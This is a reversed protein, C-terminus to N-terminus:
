WSEAFPRIKVDFTWASRPQHALHWVENAIDAPQCFFSDPKDAYRRRTWPLDIVADIALYSVHVGEPGLRRAMSEALIRQAAKTPAFGAFNAVGRYAATNGTCVIAGERSAIMAPATAQVLRLFSMTNIQFNAQLDDPDLQLVDAFTGRAGNHVVISADGMTDSIDALVRSLEDADAMDCVFAKVSPYEEALGEIVDASRALLAVRYHEAFRRVVAAGTGPGVGAVIVLKRSDGQGINDIDSTEDAM